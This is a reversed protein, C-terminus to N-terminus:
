TEEVPWPVVVPPARLVGAPIGAAFAAARVDPFHAWVGGAELLDAIACVCEFGLWGALGAREARCEACM